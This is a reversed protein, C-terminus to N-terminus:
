DPKGVLVCPSVWASTSPGALGNELLYAVEKDIRKNKKRKTQLRLTELTRLQIMSLSKRM